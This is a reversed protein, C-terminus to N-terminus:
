NGMSANQSSFTMLFEEPKKEKKVRRCSSENRLLNLELQGTLRINRMEDGEAKTFSYYTFNIILRHAFRNCLSV